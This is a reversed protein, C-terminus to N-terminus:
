KLQDASIVKRKTIALSFESYEEAWMETKLNNKMSNLKTIDKVLGTTRKHAEFKKSRGKKREVNNTM